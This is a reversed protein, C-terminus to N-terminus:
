KMINVNTHDFHKFLIKKSNEDISSITDVLSKMGDMQFQKMDMVQQKLIKSKIFAQKDKRGKINARDWAYTVEDESFLDLVALDEYHMNEETLRVKKHKLM